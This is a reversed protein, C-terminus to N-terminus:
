KAARSARLAERAKQLKLQSEKALADSAKLNKRASTNKTKLPADNQKVKSAKAASARSAKLAERAKKLKAAAKAKVAEDVVEVKKKKAAPKAATGSISKTMKTMVQAKGYHDKFHDLEDAYKVQVFNEVDGTLEAVTRGTNVVPLPDFGVSLLLQGVSNQWEAYALMCRMEALIKEAKSHLLELKTAKENKYEARTHKYASRAVGTIRRNLQFEEGAHMYRLYAINVQALIATTLAHRRAVAIAKGRQATTVEKPATVIKVLDQVLNASLEYWDNHFYFDNSDYKPYFDITADPLAGVITKDIEVEAIRARYDEERLEPRLGLAMRELIDVDMKFQKLFDTKLKKPQVVKYTTGPKLGMLSGLEIHAEDMDRMLVKVQRYIELLDKQYEFVEKAPKLEKRRIQDAVRIAEDMQYLINRFHRKMRQAVYTRWYAYRVDKIINHIMKRQREITILYEDGAQQVGYYALAVDLVGYSLDLEAIRRDKDQSTSPQTELGGTAINRSSSISEPDRYRYGLRAVIEPFFEYHSLDLRDNAIISELIKLRNDLNYKMARAMAEYISVPGNIPEPHYKIFGTDDMARKDSTNLTMPEPSLSCSALMFSVALASVTKNRLKRM